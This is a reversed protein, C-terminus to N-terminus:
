YNCIKDFERMFDNLSVTNNQFLRRELEQLQKFFGVNPHSYQQSNRAAKLIQFAELLMKQRGVMLWAVVM